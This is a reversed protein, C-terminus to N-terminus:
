VALAELFQQSSSQNLTSAKKKLVNVSRKHIKEDGIIVPTIPSESKGTDFGLKSLGDKLYQANEWLQDHLETSAM